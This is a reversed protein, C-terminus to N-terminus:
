TRIKTKVYMVVLLFITATLLGTHLYVDTYKTAYLIDYLFGFFLIEAYLPLYITLGALVLATLWWPLVLVFIYVVVFLLIRQWIKM